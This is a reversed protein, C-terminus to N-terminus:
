MVDCDLIVLKDKTFHAEAAKWEDKTFDIITKGSSKYETEWEPIQSLFDKDKLFKNESM